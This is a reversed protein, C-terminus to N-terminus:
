SPPHHFLLGNFKPDAGVLICKLSQTLSKDKQKGGQETEEKTYATLFLPFLNPYDVKKNYVLTHPTITTNKIHMKPMM